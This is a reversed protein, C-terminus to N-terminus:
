QTAKRALELAEADCADFAASPHDSEDARARLKAELEDLDKALVVDFFLGNPALDADVFVLGGDQAEFIAARSGNLGHATTDTALLRGGIVAPHVTQRPLNWAPRSNM